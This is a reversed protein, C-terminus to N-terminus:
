METKWTHMCQANCYAILGQVGYEGGIGSEKFGGFYGRPDPKGWSNCWVVVILTKVKINCQLVYRHRSRATKWCTRSTRCGSGM